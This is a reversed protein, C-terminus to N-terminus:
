RCANLMSVPDQLHIVPLVVVVVLVVRDDQGEAPVVAVAHQRTQVGEAM